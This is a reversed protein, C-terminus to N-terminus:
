FDQGCKQRVERIHHIRNLSEEIGHSMETLENRLHSLQTYTNRIDQNVTESVTVIDETLISLGSFQQSSQEVMTAMLSMNNSVENTELNVKELHERIHDASSEIQDVALEVQDSLNRVEEAIVAFGLGAEGAHAAEIGANISLLGTTRAIKRITESLAGIGLLVNELERIQLEQYRVAEKTRSFFQFLGRITNQVQGNQSHLKGAAERHSSILEGSQKLGTLLSGLNTIQRDLSIMQAASLEKHADHIKDLLPGTGVIRMEGCKELVVVVGGFDQDTELIKELVTRVTCDGHVVLMERHMIRAVPKEFFLSVGYRTGLISYLDQRAILGQPNKQHEVLLIGSNGTRFYDLVEAVPTDPLISEVTSALERIPLEMIDQM